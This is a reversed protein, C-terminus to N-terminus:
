NLFLNIKPYRSKWNKNDIVLNVKVM